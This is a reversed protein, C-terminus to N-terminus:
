ATFMRRSSRSLPQRCYACCRAKKEDDCTKLWRALCSSHFRHGCPTSGIAGIDSGEADDTGECGVQFCIMCAGQAVAGGSGSSPEGGRERTRTRTACVAVAHEGTHYSQLTCGFFTCKDDEHAAVEVM